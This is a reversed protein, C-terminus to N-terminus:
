TDRVAALNEVVLVERGIDVDARVAGMVKPDRGGIPQARQEVVLAPLARDRSAEDSGSFNVSVFAYLARSVALWAAVPRLSAEDAGGAPDVPMGVTTAAISYLKMPPLM